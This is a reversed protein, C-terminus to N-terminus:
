EAGFVKVIEEDSMEEPNKGHTNIIKVPKYQGNKLKEYYISRLLQYTKDIDYQPNTIDSYIANSAIRPDDHLQEATVQQM